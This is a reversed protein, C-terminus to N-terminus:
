KKNISLIEKRRIPFDDYRRPLLSIVDYASYIGMEYLLHNLRPSKTLKNSM